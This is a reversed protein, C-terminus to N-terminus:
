RHARLPGQSGGAVALARQEHEAELRGVMGDLVVERARELETAHVAALGVLRRGARAGAGAGPALGEQRPTRESVKSLAMVHSRSGAKWSATTPAM